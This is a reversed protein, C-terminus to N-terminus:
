TCSPNAQVPSGSCTCHAQQGPNCAIGSWSGDPCQIACTGGAGGGGGGDGPDQYFPGHHDFAQAATVPLTLLLFAVLLLRVKVKTSM